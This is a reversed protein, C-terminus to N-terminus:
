EGLIKIEGRAADMRVKMGTKLKKLLGGHVGVITPIGLERAVVASHSLLSGREILLGSTSPFLPVWGPDTRETVMIEGNLDTADSMEKVVRVVGEVVGPSCPTGLLISPDDSLKVDQALLDELSQFYKFNVGAVGKTIFRDPPTPTKAYAEYQMKRSQILSKFDAEFSRGEQYSIIEDISLYFIDMSTEVLGLEQYRLGLSKFIRRCLGFSNTRLLRLDERDKVALRAKKVIWFYLSRKVGSLKGKIKTEAAQAKKKEKEIIDDVSTHNMRVFNKVAEIAFSPDEHLDTAELKLENVCRFGFLDIYERFVKYVDPMKGQQWAQYIEQVSTNNLWQKEHPYHNVILGAIRMLMRTPETSPLDQGSLLDNYLSSSDEDKIWKETLAKLLGFFIMCRTDSIIPAKWRGVFETNLYHYYDLLESISMKPYDKSLGEQYLRDFDKKFDAIIKNVKILRQLNIGLIWIKRFLGYNPPNKTFDFLSEMEPKLGQKVGMMTEMFSNSKSSAPFLFLMHYWNRLNYYVRGRISGLMNRFTLDHEEILTKPVGMVECFQIYVQRYVKSIHSFTLPLTIGNYSETINSNDWLIYQEGMVDNTFFSEPPYNTIPRAQVCYLKNNEIVWEIDQPCGLAKEMQVLLTGINKIDEDKLSSVEQLETSVDVKQLGGKPHSILKFSKKVLESKKISLDARNVYYTDADLEGSVLGEGAGYVSSILMEDRQWLSIPNRSFAVGACDASIMQQVVVAIKMTGLSMGREKRYALSRETFASAWCRRISSSIQEFGQQFLFSSFQGAFSHDASDEGVGSSRVACPYFPIKPRLENILASPLDKTLFAKEIEQHSMSELNEFGQIFEDFAMTSVVFWTPVQAQAKELRYLNYAKGGAYLSLNEASSHTDLIYHTM